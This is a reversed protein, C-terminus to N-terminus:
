GSILYGAGVLSRLHPLMEQRLSEADADLLQAVASILALAPLDGDCAGVIAALATGVEVARGLGYQQRLM